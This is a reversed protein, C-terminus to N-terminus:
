FMPKKRQPINLKIIFRYPNKKAFRYAINEDLSTSMYIPVVVKKGYRIMDRSKSIDYFDWGKFIDERWPIDVSTIMMFGDIAEVEMYADRVPVEIKPIGAENIGCSYMNGCRKGYWMVGQPPYGVSGIM